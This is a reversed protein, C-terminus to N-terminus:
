ARSHVKKRLGVDIHDIDFQSKWAHPDGRPRSVVPANREAMRQDDVGDGTVLIQDVVQEGFRADGVDVATVMGGVVCRGTDGM